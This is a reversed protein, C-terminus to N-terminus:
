KVLREGAVAIKEAARAVMERAQEWKGETVADRVAPFVSADYGSRAQPGFVVHKFQERGPYGLPDLLDTEFHALRDNYAMRQMAFRTTELGGSGLVRTTWADEFRHFDDVQHTLTDIAEKLPQVTFNHAKHLDGASAHTLKELGAYTAAADRELAATYESLSKAYVKLDFPILPRDAIELILLAWVQALTRHYQFNPDGYQQMWELTEYCSHYPYYDQSEGDTPASTASFGFDISSTGALTQFPVYDSGAGLVDLNSGHQEWLQKLSSDGTPDSVRNLVHMLPKSWLPSGQAKFVSGFVGDDVNLYAVANDHLYKIHDEVYETSGIFGYEEADWSAFEITRLPRWGLKRLESFIRVVEMMVASGSGPDAAGFCWADRHNGVLIKKQPEELGEIMGHLNWIQQVPNEDNKNKLAVVPSAATANGSYWDKSFEKPGHIWGHDLKTGHGNLSEILHSADRWALPLSPIGPLAPSEEKSLRNANQTSPFGPTLPDGMILSTRSVSGRQLTDDTPHWASDTAVDGPDSYTLVGVCGAEEAAMVKLARDGESGGYKVLAISGKTVVGRKHLWAFDVSSGSNAYILHGEVEGSKSHGHWAKTQQRDEYVKEEDLKATWEKGKPRVISVSREGPYNLYVYYPLMAIHDLQGSEAWKEEMWKALYLDGETGAVHDFSTIHALYGEIINSDVNDQVFTRVSEPDFHAGGRLHGRGPFIDFAFLVYILTMLTFLGFLRAATPASIRYQDPLRASQTFRTLWTSTTNPTSPTTNESSRVPSYLSRIRPLRISWLTSSINSLQQSWKSRAERLRARHYLRPSRRSADVPDLYDMEELPRRGDDEDEDPVQVGDLTDVSSRASEVTPPHYESQAQGQELLGQREADDSTDEPGRYQQSSGPRSSTAEDYTPIPINAYQKYKDEDGM